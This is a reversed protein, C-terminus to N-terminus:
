DFGSDLDKTPSCYIRHAITIKLFALAQRKKLAQTIAIISYEHTALNDKTVCDIYLHIRRVYKIMDSNKQVWLPRESCPWTDIKLTNESYFVQEVEEKM